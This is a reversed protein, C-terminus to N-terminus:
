QQPGQVCAPDILTRVRNSFLWPGIRDEYERGRETLLLKGENSLVATEMEMLEECQPFDDLVDTHYKTAYVGTDLGYESLLALLAFRRRQEYEDLYYGYHALNFDVEESAAYDRIIKAIGKQAVDYRDSYHVSRTYSRSGCGLGLMPDAECRFQGTPAAATKARFLRMTKQEYGAELLLERGTHYLKRRIDGYTSSSRGLGTGNRIYLPYLFIEEPSFSLARDLSEKWTAFSQGPLGYILDFNTIPFAAQQIMSLAREVTDPEQRRLASRTEKELFSEIGISLRTVGNEKLMALKTPTVTGPSVEVSFSAATDPVGAARVICLVRELESETLFTPTGGGLAAATYRINQLWTEVTNYQRELADLYAEVIEGNPQTQTFLNCFGCRMECFPIHIYFFVSERDEKDWLSRLSVPEPFARYTSKHPYSYVYTGYPSGSMIEHLANM